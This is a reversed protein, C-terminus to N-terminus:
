ISALLCLRNASQIRQIKEWQARIIFIRGDFGPSARRHAPHCCVAEWEKSSWFFCCSHQKGSARIALMALMFCKEEEVSGVCTQPDCNQLKREKQWDFPQYLREQWNSNSQEALSPESHNHSKQENQHITSPSEPHQELGRPSADSAPPSLDEAAAIEDRLLSFDFNHSGVMRTRDSVRLHGPFQLM